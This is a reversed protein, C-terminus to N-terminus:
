FIKDLSERIIQFASSIKTIKVCTYLRKDIYEPGSKPRNNAISTNTQRNPWYLYLSSLLTKKSLRM